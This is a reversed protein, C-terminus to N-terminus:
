EATRAVDKELPVGQDEEKIIERLTWSNFGTKVIEALMLPISEWIYANVFWCFSGLMLFIRMWKNNCYCLAISALTSGLLPILSKYGNWTFFTFGILALVCLIFVTHKQGLTKAFSSAVSRFMLVAQLSASTWASLLGYHLSLFFQSGAITQKTKVADRCLFSALSLALAVYGIIDIWVRDIIM